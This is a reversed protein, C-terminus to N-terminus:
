KPSVPLKHNMSRNSPNNLASREKNAVALAREEVQLQEQKARILPELGQFGAVLVQGLPLLDIHFTPKGVAGVLGLAPTRLRGRRRSQRLHTFIGNEAEIEVCLPLDVSACCSVSPIM